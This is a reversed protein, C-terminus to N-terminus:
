RVWEEGPLYAVVQKMVDSLAREFSWKTEPTILGIVENRFDEQEAKEFLNKEFMARTLKGQNKAIRWFYM